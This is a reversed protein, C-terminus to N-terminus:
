AAKIVDEATTATVARILWRQLTDLDTCARIQARIADSVPIGKAGLVTLVGEAQGSSLGQTRGKSMGQRYTEQLFDEFEQRAKSMTDPEQASRAPDDRFLLYLVLRLMKHLPQRCPDQAPLAAIEALAAERMAPTGCLRLLRTEPTTPLETLAVVWIPFLTDAHYFGRPWGDAPPLGLRALVADPRGACLVWLDPVAIGGLKLGLGHHLNLQKRVCGRVVALSPPDSFAEVLGRRLSMHWVVGIHPVAAPPPRDPRPEFYLDARQEDTPSIPKEREVATLLELAEELVHKALFDHLARM